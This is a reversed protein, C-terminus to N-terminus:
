YGDFVSYWTANFLQNISFSHGTRAESLRDFWLREKGTEMLIIGSAGSVYNTIATMADYQTKTYFFHQDWSGWVYSELDTFPTDDAANLIQGTNSLYIWINSNRLSLQHSKNGKRGTHNLASIGDYINTGQHNPYKQVRYDYTDEM